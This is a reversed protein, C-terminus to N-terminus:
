TKNCSQADKFNTKEKVHIQAKLGTETSNGRWDNQANEGHQDLKADKNGRKQENSTIKHLNSTLTQRKSATKSRKSDPKVQKLRWFFELFSDPASAFIINLDHSESMSARKQRSKLSGSSQDCETPSKISKQDTTSLLDSEIEAATPQDWFLRMLQDTHLCDLVRQM